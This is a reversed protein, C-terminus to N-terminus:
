SFALLFTIRNPSRTDSKNSSSFTPMVCKSILIWPPLNLPMAPLLLFFYLPHNPAPFFMTLYQSQTVGRRRTKSFSKEELRDTTTNNHSRAHKQEQTNMLHCSYSSPLLVMIAMMMMVMLTCTPRLLLSPVAERM